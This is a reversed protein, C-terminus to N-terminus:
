TLNLMHHKARRVGCGERSHQFSGKGTRPSTVTFDKCDRLSDKEKCCGKERERAQYRPSIMGAGSSKMPNSHDKERERAQYADDGMGVTAGRIQQFSGKGTRPSSVFRHNFAINSLSPYDSHDKERERAQYKGTGMDM